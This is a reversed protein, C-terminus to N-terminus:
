GSLVTVILLHFAAAGLLWVVVAALARRFPLRTRALAVVMALVSGVIEIIWYVPSTTDSVAGLAWVSGCWCSRSRRGGV